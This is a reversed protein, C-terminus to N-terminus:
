ENDDTAMQHGTTAQLMKDRNTQTQRTEETDM